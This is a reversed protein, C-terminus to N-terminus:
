KNTLETSDSNQRDEKELKHVCDIIVEVGFNFSEKLSILTTDFAEHNVLLAFGELYSRALRMVQEVNENGINRKGLVKFLIRLFEKSAETNLREDTRNTFAMAEFVGPNTLTYNYFVNCALRIAEDGSEGILVETLEGTLESWGYAMLEKKLEDLSTIRNYLSPTKINLREAIMKLNVNSFGVENALAATEAIVRSKDVNVKSM